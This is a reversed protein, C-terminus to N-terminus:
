ERKKAAASERIESEREEEAGKRGKELAKVM